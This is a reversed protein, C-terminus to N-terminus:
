KTIIKIAFRALATTTGLCVFWRCKGLISRSMRPDIKGYGGESVRFSVQSPTEESRGRTGGEWAVCDRLEKLGYARVYSFVVCLM